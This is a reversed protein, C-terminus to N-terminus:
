VEVECKREDAAIDIPRHGSAIEIPNSDILVIGQHEIQRLAGLERAIGGFRDTDALSAHHACGCGQSNRANGGECHIRLCVLSGPESSPYICTM